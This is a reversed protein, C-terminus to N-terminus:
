REREKHDAVLDHGGRKGGAIQRTLDLAALRARVASTGYGLQHARQYAEAARLHNGQEGLLVALNFAGHADGRENARRFCAEAATLDGHEGLLVGLNAAAAGHGLQDARQYAAVAGALEEQEELALAHRFFRDAEDPAGPEPNPTTTPHPPADIAEAPDSRPAGNLSANAAQRKNRHRGSLWTAALGVAAALAILLALLALPPSSTPHSAPVVKRPAATRGPQRPATHPRSRGRRSRRDARHSGAPRSRRPAQHPTLQQNGLHALTQPGAIGDAELGHAAQFRSVAQETLPGYRGDIPGPASGARALRRQLVRVRRSGHGAYGAGPYLVVSPRSLAALTLPGAIGDVELGHAAQFRIVAQETRAGFRGDIPGPADGARVLRRQLGRVRAAGDRSLYGSGPALVVAGAQDLHASQQRKQPASPKAHQGSAAGALASAPALAIVLMSAVLFRVLRKTSSVAGLLLGPGLPAQEELGAREGAGIAASVPACSEMWARKSRSM